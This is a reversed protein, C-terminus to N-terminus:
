ENEKTPPPCLPTRADAFWERRGDGREDTWVPIARGIVANVPLSGFYRGDFSAPEGPNLTFIEGPGLVNCGNWAPLPRGLRDSALALAVLQSDITIGHRFRCVRQGSVAAVRKLLPVGIPLYGRDALLQRVAAPPEIAVRDGVALADKDGIWYLGTPVSHTVNWVLPRRAPLALSAMALGAALAAVIITRRRM